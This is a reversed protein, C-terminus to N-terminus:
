NLKESEQESGEAGVCMALNWLGDTSGMNGELRRRLYRWVVLAWPLCQGGKVLCFCARGAPPGAAWGVRGPGEGEYRM